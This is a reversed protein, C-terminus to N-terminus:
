HLYVMLQGSEGALAICAPKSGSTAVDSVGGEFKHLTEVIAGSSLDWVYTLGEQTGVIGLCASTGIATIRQDLVSGLIVTNNILLALRWCGPLNKESISTAYCHDAPSDSTTCILLWVAIDEGEMSSFDSQKDHKLQWAMTAAIISNVWDNGLKNNVLIEKQWSFLGVPLFQLVSSEPALFSSLITRKKIDWLSFDGYGNHGLVLSAINPIRKLEMIRSTVYNYSPIVHEETHESWTANMVWLYFCGSEDVAVLHDPECVLVCLIPHVVKLNVVISAYGLKVQVIRVAIEDFCYSACLPCQCNYKQLRCLPAKIGGVLVLSQGDPTFHVGYKDVAIENGFSDRLLPLAVSTYGMFSPCGRNPKELALKYLFLKKESKGIDGCSVCVYICHVARALTVSSIRKPHSYCGLLETTGELMNVDLTMCHKEDACPKAGECCSRNFCVNTLLNESESYKKAATPGSVQDQSQLSITEHSESERPKENSPSDLHGSIAEASALINSGNNGCSKNGEWTGVACMNGAEQYTELVCDNGLVSHNMSKSPSNRHRELFTQSPSASASTICAVESGAATPGEKEPPQVLSVANQIRGPTSIHVLVDSSQPLDESAGRLQMPCFNTHGSNTEHSEGQCPSLTQFEEPHRLILGTSRPISKGTTGISEVEKAIPSSQSAKNSFPYDYQENELSDPAVAVVSAAAVRSPQTLEVEPQGMSAVDQPRCNTGRCEAEPKVENSTEKLAKGCKRKKRSYKLLPVAQPLLFTMMSKTIEECVDGVSDFENKESNDNSNWAASDENQVAVPNPRFSLTIKTADSEINTCAPDGSKVAADTVTNEQPSDYTDPACLHMSNNEQSGYSICPNVDPRDNRLVARYENERRSSSGPRQTEVNESRDLPTDEKNTNVLAPSVALCTRKHNLFMDPGNVCMKDESSESLEKSKSPSADAQSLSVEKGVEAMLAGALTGSADPMDGEKSSTSSTTLNGDNDRQEKAKTELISTEVLLRDSRRPIDAARSRSESVLSSGGSAANVNVLMERILRQVLANRFGFFEVGDINCSFRKGPGLKLNSCGKKQFNQWAIDPTQGSSSQGESSTVQFIPGKPGEHIEMKHSVGNHTRRAQFGVLYPYRDKGRSSSWYKKDLPGCYLAGISVIELGDSKSGEEDTKAM